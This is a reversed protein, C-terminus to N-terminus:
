YSLFGVCPPLCSRLTWPVIALPSAALDTSGLPGTGQSRTYDNGCALRAKRKLSLLGSSCILVFFLKDVAWKFAPRPCTWPGSPGYQWEGVLIYAHRWPAHQFVWDYPLCQYLISAYNKAYDAEFLMIWFFLCLGWNKAYNSCKAAIELMILANEMSSLVKSYAAISPVVCPMLLNQCFYSKTFCNSVTRETDSECAVRFQTKRDTPLDVPRHGAVVFRWTPTAAVVNKLGHVLTLTRTVILSDSNQILVFGAVKDNCPSAVSKRERRRWHDLKAQVPVM